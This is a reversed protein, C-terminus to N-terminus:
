VTGGSMSTEVTLYTSVRATGSYKTSESFGDANFPKNKLKVHACYFLRQHIVILCIVCCFQGSNMRRRINHTMVSASPKSVIMIQLMKSVLEVAAINLFYNM